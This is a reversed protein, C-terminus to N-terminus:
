KISGVDILCPNTTFNVSKIKSLMPFLSKPVPKQPLTVTSLDAEGPMVEIDICKSLYSLDRDIQYLHDTKYRCIENGYKKKYENSIKIPASM